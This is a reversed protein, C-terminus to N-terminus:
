NFLRDDGPATKEEMSEKDNKIKKIYFALALIMSVVLILLGPAPSDDDGNDDADDPPVDDPSISSLFPYTDGDVINWIYDTDRYDPNAVTVIDWGVDSFTTIDIMEATTRGIGGDSETIGSTEIDWFSNSVPGRNEGFLGGVLNNGSVNGTAYSNSVPGGRNWGVLGGARDGGSVDGTAYSNSVVTDEMNSGVLGGVYWQTGSVDGTAYSNSVTGRNWGVLGGVGSVGTLTGTAYSNEVTGGWDNSGVLGGANFGTGSVDGTAYSDSVMGGWTNRGVLGGVLSNGSVTGTAYSKYVTGENRGVLVGVYNYGSVDAHVVGVNRVEGGEGVLGFLGVYETGDRDIYLGTITYNQGDFSGTFHNESEGVPGTGVPEWGDGDNWDSTESADIDNALAYHASLGNNMNQLDDVDYIMYPDDPTGSGSTFNHLETTTFEDVFVGVCTIGVSVGLVSVLLLMVICMVRTKKVIM